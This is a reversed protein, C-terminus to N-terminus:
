ELTAEFLPYCENTIIDLSLKALEDESMDLLETPTVRLMVTDAVCGALAEAEPTSQEFGEIFGVVYATWLTETWGNQIPCSATLYCEEDEITPEVAAPAEAAPPAESAPTDTEVECDSAGLAMLAVLMVGVGVLIKKFM